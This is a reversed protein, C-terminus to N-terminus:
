PAPRMRPARGEPSIPAAAPVLAGRLHERLARLAHHHRSKVTGLPCDLIEAIEALSYEHLYRLVVVARLQDPLRSVGELVVQTTERLESFREPSSMSEDARSGSLLAEVNEIPELLFRRRKLYNLSLNVAVRQLWPLPPREPDLRARAGYARLFTDVAIEEAAMPDRTLAFATRHVPAEYTRYFTEFARLDGRRVGAILEPDASQRDSM